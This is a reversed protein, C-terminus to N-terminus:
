LWAPGSPVCLRQVEIEKNVLYTFYKGSLFITLFLDSFSRLQRTCYTFYLPCDVVEVQIYVPIILLFFCISADLDKSDRRERQESEM